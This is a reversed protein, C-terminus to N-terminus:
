EEGSKCLFIDLKLLLFHLLLGEHIDFSEYFSSGHASWDSVIIGFRDKDDSVGAIISYSSIVSLPFVILSHTWSTKM